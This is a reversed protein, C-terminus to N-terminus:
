KYNHAKKNSKRINDEAWLAQLNTYHCLKMLEQETKASDLPIIHDIHWKGHNSWTMGEQFTGELHEKVSEYDAGLMEETSKNKKWNKFKFMIYIRNRLTGKLKYLSDTARRNKQYKRKNEKQAKNKNIFYQKNNERYKKFYNKNNNRYNDNYEKCCKKCKNRYGLKKHKDKHYNDTSQQINCTNCIKTEQM